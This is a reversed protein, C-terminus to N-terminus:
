NDTQHVLFHGTKLKTTYATTYFQSYLSRLLYRYSGKQHNRTGVSVTFPVQLKRQPPDSVIQNPDSDLKEMKIQIRIQSQCLKSVRRHLESRSFLNKASFNIHRLHLDLKPNSSVFIRRRFITLFPLVLTHFLHSYFYLLHFVLLFGAFYYTDQSSGYRQKNGVWDTCSNQLSKQLTTPLSSTASRSDKQVLSLQAPGLRDMSWQVAFNKLCPVLCYRKQRNRWGSIRLQNNM